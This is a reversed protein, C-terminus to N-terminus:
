ADDGNRGHRRGDVGYGDVPGAHRGDGDATSSGDTPIPMRTPSRPTPWARPESASPSLRLSLSSLVSRRVADNWCSPSRMVPSFSLCVLSLCSAWCFATTAVFRCILFRLSPVACSLSVSCCLFPFPSRFLLPFLPFFLVEFCCGFVGVQNFPVNALM